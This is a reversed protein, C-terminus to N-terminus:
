LIPEDGLEKMDGHVRVLPRHCSTLHLDSAGMKFMKRLLYNIEPEPGQASAAAGTAACGPAKAAAPADARKAGCTLSASAQGNEVSFSVSVNRTASAYEFSVPKSQALLERTEAPAIEGVLGFIQGSTLQQSIMPSSGGEAKLAPPKGTELVMEQGPQLKEILKDLQPM